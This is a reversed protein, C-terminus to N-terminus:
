RKTSRVNYLKDLEAKINQIPMVPDPVLKVPETQDLKAGYTDEIYEPDLNFGMQAIRLDVQSKEILDIQETTDWEFLANDLGTFGLDIMLPILKDNVNRQIFKADTDGYLNSINEGVTGVVQGTNNSVVDQGMILKAIQEDIYAAFEMYVKYADTRNVGVYEVVDDEDFVGNGNAGLDRLAKVFKRREDGQASTKGIRVDMGFVESWESWNGLVNEKFLMYRAIKRLLGYCASGEFILWDRIMQDTFDIGTRDGPQRTVIGLEPKVYDRDIVQVPDRIIGDSTRWNVFKNDEVAGFEVLTFGYMKSDLMKSMYDMFWGTEFIATAEDNEEDNITVRFEKDITKLKRTEWQSKLMPDDM